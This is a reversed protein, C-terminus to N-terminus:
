GAGARAAEVLLEGAGRRLELRDGEVRSSTAGLLADLFHQEQEMVGPQMCMKRTAAAPELKLVGGAGTTYRTAYRNCGASGSARGDSGFELTLNTGPVLSAAGGKGDSLRTVTWATGALSPSTDAPPAPNMSEFSCGGLALLCAVAVACCHMQTRM